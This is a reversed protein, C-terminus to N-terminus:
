TTGAWTCASSNELFASALRASASLALLVAVRCTISATSNARTNNKALTAVM